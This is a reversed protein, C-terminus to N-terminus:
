GGQLYDAFYEDATVRRSTLGLLFAEGARVSVGEPGRHLLRQRRQVGRHPEERDM